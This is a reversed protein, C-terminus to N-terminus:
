NYQYPRLLTCGVSPLTGKFYNINPINTKIHSCKSREAYEPRQTWIIDSPLYKKSPCNSHILVQNRLHNELKTMDPPRAIKQTYINWDPTMPSGCNVPRQPNFNGPTFTPYKSQSIDQRIKMGHLCTDYNDRTLSM